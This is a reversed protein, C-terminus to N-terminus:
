FPFEPHGTIGKLFSFDCIRGSEGMDLTNLKDIDEQQFEWNFLQINEEIRRPNISKPIATIGKQIIHKLLIQAPTRKYKEAMELVTRNQLPDPVIDAKGLKNVFGRSGLPSYATM